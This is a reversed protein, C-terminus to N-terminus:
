QISGGSLTSGAICGPTVLGSPLTVNCLWQPYLPDYISATQPAQYGYGAAAVNTPTFNAILTAMCGPVSAFSSCSPASPNAPAALSPNTGFTNNPGFSFGASSVINSNNGFSSYGWTNYVHDTTTVSTNVQYAYVTSGNCSTAVNPVVLNAFVEVNFATSLQIEACPNGTQTNDTSNGWLTNHRIYVHACTTCISNLEVEIGRGGNDVVINNDVVVQQTYPGVGAQDGDLTDINIGEGDTAPYGGNCNPTNLAAFTFNGAIYIHTGPLTDHNLPSYININSYCFSGAAANYAINGIVAIYDTSGATSGTGSVGGGIGGAYCGNAIDNAFIIHHVSIKTGSNPVGFFCGAYTNATVSVEFGQVGWYSQDVYLGPNGGSVTMKCADFTVCKLWVVNPAGTCTVAGWNGETLEASTYGTSAAAIITSGCTMPHNPTFWPTGSATGNNTDNGTPSLYYTGVALPATQYTVIIGRQQYSGSYTMTATQVGTTAASTWEDKENTDVSRNGAYGTGATLTAADSNLNFWGYVLENTATTAGTTSVSIPSSAAAADLTGHQDLTVTSTVGGVESVMIGAVTVQNGSTVTLTVVNSANAGINQAICVVMARRDTSSASDIRECQGYSNGQTDTITYTDAATSITCSDDTDCWKVAVIQARGATNSATCAVTAGYGGNGNACGAGSLAIARAHPCLV